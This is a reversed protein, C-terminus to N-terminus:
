VKSNTSIRLIPRVNENGEQFGLLFRVLRTCSSFHLLLRVPCGADKTMRAAQGSARNLSSTFDRAALTMLVRVSILM